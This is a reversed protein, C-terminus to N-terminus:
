NSLATLLRDMEVHQARMSDLQALELELQELWYAAQVPIDALSADVRLHDPLDNMRDLARQWIEQAGIVKARAEIEAARTEALHARVRLLEARIDRM